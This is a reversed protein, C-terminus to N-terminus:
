YITMLSSFITVELSAVSAKLLQKEEDNEASRSTAVTSEQQLKQLAESTQEHSRREQQLATEASLLM